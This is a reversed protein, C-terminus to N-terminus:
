ISLRGDRHLDLAFIEAPPVEEFQLAVEPSKARAATRRGTWVAAIGLVALMTAYGALNQLARVEIQM